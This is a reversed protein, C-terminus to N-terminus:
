GAVRYAGPRFRRSRRRYAFTFGPWLASNRGAADLYWSSCGGQSWVTGRMKADVEATYREVAEPTPEVADAGLRRRHALVALVHSIQSELMLLVSTHGLGTNPGFLFFLNPFGTVTTGLYARMTPRWAEALSRGGVGTVHRAIPADTVHFGTGLIITDVEHAQGDATVVASPRVERIPATVVDVNPRGLTPWYDNSVVIRKCGMTYTPRLRARLVPDPVSRRLHTEAARQLARMLRPHRFGLVFLERSWFVSLRVLRQTPPFLRFVARETRTIPRARRPLVWAPTRQFVLLRDVKPQIAPVFQATSAGTGVVAVRRGTLDHDHRWRASHFVTGAFDDLGPLPPIAPESLAGTAVIVVDATMAARATDLHWVRGAEDWGIEHVAHGLRLHPGVGFRDVCQRQYAWIEDQASYTSTWDPNPAFSYSYLHSPVDCACGPYSNDRWTGGIEDAREFVLFDHEGDNKLGIAAGLGAFGAGVIAIHIHQGM